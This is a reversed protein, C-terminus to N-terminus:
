GKFKEDCYRKLTRVMKVNGLSFFGKKEGIDFNHEDESGFQGIYFNVPL